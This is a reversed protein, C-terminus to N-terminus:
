GRGGRQSTKTYNFLERAVKRIDAEERITFTAGELMREYNYITQQPTSNQGSAAFIANGISSLVRENLPLVAEPGAEGGGYLKGGSAGFLTPKTMLGGKAMWKIDVEPFGDSFWKLPNLSGKKITIKPVKLEPWEFKFKFFGKITEIIEKVKNRAKDIPDTIAAYTENFKTKINTILEKFDFIKKIKTYWENFKKVTDSIFTKMFSLFKEYPEKLPKLIATVISKFFLVIDDWHKIIFPLVTTLITIVIGIPGTLAGFALRLAPLIKSGINLLLPGLRSFVGTLGAGGGGFLTVVTLILPSIATLAGVLIGIASGIAVIGSTLGPNKAAWEAIKAIVNAITTLLPELAIKTNNIAENFKVLANEEGMKAADENVDSQTKELTKLAGDIGLMTDVINEGQDEWKTAYLETGIANRLTADDISNLWENMDKFAQTGEKGGAAIAKGWGELQDFVAQTAASDPPNKALELKRDNMEKFSALEAAHADRVADMEISLRDNLADKRAQQEEKLSNLKATNVERLANIQNKNSEQISALQEKQQEQFLRKQESQREKLAEKELDTQAKLQDKKEDLESKLAEKQKDASEKIVDKQDKLQDIQDKRQERVSDLRLKEDFDRLEKQADIKDKVTKAENIKRQLDIRKETNERQKIARDEADTKDNLADIQSEIAKIKNYKEEDVLKLKENYEKDILAIKADTAKEFESVEKELSKELERQQKEYSKSVADYEKSLRKELADAQKDYAKSASEYQRDLQKDLEQKQKNQNKSIANLQKDLSKSLAAEQKEFGSDMIEIQEDTMKKTSATVDRIADKFSEKLGRGMEAAKIRGEKLGDLLNDINWSDTSVASAIVAKLEDGEFGARRLQNGYESIIDIQSEPFGIKLLDNVLNLAEEDTTQLEGAIENVEQILEVFDIASYSKAISAAGEVIKANSEDTAEANLAWQKRVGSLAEEADIGYKQVDGISQRVVAKSEEDVNFTIDIKSNLDSVDLASEMVKAIGVGAAIGGLTKLADGLQNVQQSSNNAQQSLRELERRVEEINNGNLRNISNRIENLDTGAGLASRAIRNFANELDRSTATGMQISHVLDQGLLNSYDRLRTGTADFLGQLRRMSDGQETQARQARGLANATETISNAAQQEITQHRLLQQQYKKVEESNEGWIAKARALADATAQTQRQAVQYIQQLSQMKAELKETATASHKMEEQQLKMQAKLQATEDNMSKMSDNFQKNFAKFTVSVVNNNNNNAM